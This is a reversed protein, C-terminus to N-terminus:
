VLRKYQLMEGFGQQSWELDNLCLYYHGFYLYDDNKILKKREASLKEQVSDETSQGTSCTALAKLM